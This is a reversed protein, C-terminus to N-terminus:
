SFAFEHAYTVIAYNINQYEVEHIDHNTTSFIMIAHHFTLNTVLFFM